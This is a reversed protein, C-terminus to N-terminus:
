GGCITLHRPSLNVEFKARQGSYHLIASKINLNLKFDLSSGAMKPFFLRSKLNLRIKFTRM